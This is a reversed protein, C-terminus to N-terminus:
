PWTSVARSVLYCFYVGDAAGHREDIQVSRSRPSVVRGGDTKARTGGRDRLYLRVDGHGTRFTRDRSV